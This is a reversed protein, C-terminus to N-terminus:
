QPPHAATAQGALVDAQERVGLLGPCDLSGRYTAEILEGLEADGFQGYTRWRLGAERRGPRFGALDLKMYILEALLAYGGSLLVAAEEQEDPKVFAQVFSLGADLSAASVARILQGQAPRDVDPGGLPAFLLLGTRGPSDLVMAAAVCRRGRRAWWLRVADRGRARVLEELAQAQADSLLDRRGGGALFHLSRDWGRAPVPEIKLPADTMAPAM